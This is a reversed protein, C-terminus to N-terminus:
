RPIVYKRMRVKWKDPAPEKAPDTLYEEMYPPDSRLDHDRMYAEMAAYVKSPDTGNYMCTIVNGSPLAVANTGSISFTALTPLAAAMDKTPANVDRDYYIATPMGAPPIKNDILLQYLSSINRAFYEMRQPTPVEARYSIFFQQMTFEPEIKHGFYTRDMYRAETQQELKESVLNVFKRMNWWHVPMLLDSLFGLTGEGSIHVICSTSDKHEVIFTYTFLKGSLHAEVLKITDAAQANDVKIVGAGHANSTFSCSDLRGTQPQNYVAAFSPDKFAHAQIVAHEHMDRLANKAYLSPVGMWQDAKASYSNGIVLSLVCLVAVVAGAYILLKKLRSM